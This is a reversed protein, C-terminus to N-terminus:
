FKIHISLGIFTKLSNKRFGIKNGKREITSFQLCILLTYRFNVMSKGLLRKNWPFNM